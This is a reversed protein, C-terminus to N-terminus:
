FCCRWSILDKFFKCIPYM